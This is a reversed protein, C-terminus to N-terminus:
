QEWAIKAMALAVVAYDFKGVCDDCLTITRKLPSADPRERYDETPLLLKLSLQLELGSDGAALECSCRQCNM